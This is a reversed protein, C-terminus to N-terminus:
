DIKCVSINMVRHWVTEDKIIRLDNRALLEGLDDRVYDKINLSEDLMQGITGYVWIMVPNRFTRPEFIVIVNKTVRVTESVVQCRIESPLDHLAASITACDFHKDPFALRTADM